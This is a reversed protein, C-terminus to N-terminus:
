KTLIAVLFLYVHYCNHSLVDIVVFPVASTLYVYWSNLKHGYQNTVM